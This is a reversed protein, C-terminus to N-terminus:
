FLIFLNRLFKVKSEAPKKANTVAVSTSSDTKESPTLEGTNSPQKSVEDEGDDNDNTTNSTSTTVDLVRLDQDNGGELKIVVLFEVKLKSKKRPFDGRGADLFRTLGRHNEVDISVDNLYGKNYLEMFVDLRRKTIQRQEERRKSYEDPHYKYKM